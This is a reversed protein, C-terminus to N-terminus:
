LVLVARKFTVLSRKIAISIPLAETSVRDIQQMQYQHGHCIVESESHDKILFHEGLDHARSGIGVINSSSHRSVTMGTNVFM